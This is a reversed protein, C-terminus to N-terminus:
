VLVEGCSARNLDFIHGGPQWTQFDEVLNTPNAYGAIESARKQNSSVLYEAVWRAERPTLM